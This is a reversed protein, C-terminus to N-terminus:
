IVKAYKGYNKYILAVGAYYIAISLILISFLAVLDPPKNYMLINRYAEFLVAMPNLMFLTRLNEPVMEISYLAPSLYFWFRLLFSRFLNHIDKYFVGWHSFLTGIGLAFVFNVAIILPFYLYCVNIEFGYIRLILLMLMIGFAFNIMNHLCRVLPFIAAPLYIQNLMNRKNSIATISDMISASTFKWPVLACILFVPYDPGGRKLIVGILLVYVLMYFLPDLLWWLWGLITGSYRTQFETKVMYQILDNYNFTDKISRILM